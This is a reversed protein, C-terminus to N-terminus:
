GNSMVLYVGILMGAVFAAVCMVAVYEVPIM